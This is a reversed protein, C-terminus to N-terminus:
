FSFLQGSDETHNLWPMQYTFQPEAVRSMAAGGVGGCVGLRQAENFIDGVTMQNFWIKRPM